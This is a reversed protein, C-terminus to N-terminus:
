NADRRRKPPRIGHKLMEALPPLEPALGDLWDEVQFRVEDKTWETHETGLEEQEDEEQRAPGSPAPRQNEEVEDEEWLEQEEEATEVPLCFPGQKKAEEEMASKVWEKHEKKSAFGTEIEEVEFRNLGEKKNKAKVAQYSKEDLMRESVKRKEEEKLSVLKLEYTKNGNFAKHKNKKVWGLKELEKLMLSVPVTNPEGTKTKGCGYFEAMRAQTIDVRGLTDAHKCLIVMLRLQAHSVRTDLLLEEPVQAFSQDKMWSPQREKKM